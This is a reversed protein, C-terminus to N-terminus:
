SLTKYSFSTHLYSSYVFYNLIYHRLIRVHFSVSCFPKFCFLPIFCFSLLSHFAYLFHLHFIFNSVFFLHFRHCFNFADFLYPFLYTVDTRSLTEIGETRFMSRSSPLPLGLIPQYFLKLNLTHYQISFILLLFCSLTDVASM